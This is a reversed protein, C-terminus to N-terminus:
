FNFFFFIIGFFSFFSIGSEVVQRTEMGWFPMWLPEKIYPGGGVGWHLVENNNNYPFLELNKYRSRRYKNPCREEKQQM